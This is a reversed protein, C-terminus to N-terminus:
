NLIYKYTITGIQINNETSGTFKTKFATQEAIKRMTADGITTGQAGAKASIVKGQPNVEITVVIYGEIDQIYPPKQPNIAKRNGLNYSVDSGRGGGSYNTSNFDGDVSGQNGNVSTIGQSKSQNFANQTTKKVKQKREELAKREAEQRKIEALREEQLRKEEERKQKMELSEEIDQTQLDAKSPSSLDPISTAESSNQDIEESLEGEPIPEFLGEGTDDTGFNVTLGDEIPPIVSQVGYFYIALLLLLHVLITGVVGAIKSDKERIKSM